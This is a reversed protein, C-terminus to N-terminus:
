FPIDDDMWTAKRESEIPKPPSPPQRAIHKALLFNHFAAALQIALEGYVPSVEIVDSGQGHGALKNRLFPLAMLVTQRFGDHIEKPLDAIYEQSVLAKTLADANVHAQGTLVKLVSEFSKCADGIADKVEGSALKRQAQAYEDAAGAFNNASLVEHATVSLRVGVFDADLMFFEGDTFRWPCCHLELLSNLKQRFPEQDAATMHSFTLEIADFVLPGVGNTVLWRIQQGAQLEKSAALDPLQTWGHETLLDSEGEDLATTQDRWSDNPDRQVYLPSNFKNLQALAQSRLRSPLDVGFVRNELARMYRLSFILRAAM